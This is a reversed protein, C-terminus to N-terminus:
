GEAMEWRNKSENYDATWHTQNNSVNFKPKTLKGKVDYQFDVKYCDSDNDWYPKGTIKVKIQKGFIDYVTIIDGPKFSNMSIEEKIIRRIMETITEKKKM